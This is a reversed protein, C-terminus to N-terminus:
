SFGAPMGSARVIIIAFIISWRDARRGPALIHAIELVSFFAYSVAQVDCSVQRARDLFSEIRPDSESGCGVYWARSQRLSICASRSRPVSLAHTGDGLIELHIVRLAM